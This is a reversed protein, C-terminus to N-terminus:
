VIKWAKDRKISSVASASIGYKKAISIGTNGAALLVRIEEVDKEKLKACGHKEGCAPKKLGTAFAHQTNESKTCWELNSVKNNQKCGDKHNVFDKGEVHPIFADAVLRHVNYFERIEGETAYNLTVYGNRDITTRLVKPHHNVKSRIKVVIGTDSVYANKHLMESLRFTDGLFVVEKQNSSFLEEFIGPISNFGKTACYVTTIDIGKERSIDSLSVGNSFMIKIEDVTINDLKPKANWTCGMWYLNDLNNNTPNGDRHAIIKCGDKKGKFTELVLQHIYKRVVKDAKRLSVRCLGRVDPTAKLVRGLKVSRVQGLNSVQYDGDFGNINKWIEEM